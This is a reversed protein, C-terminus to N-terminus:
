ASIAPHLYVPELALGDEAGNKVFATYLHEANPTETQPVGKLKDTTVALSCKSLMTELEALPYVASPRTLVGNEYATFFFSNRRADTFVGLFSVEQLQLGLADSSRVPIVQAGAARALGQAIAIAVRIGSFSGPGVGVLITNLSALPIDSSKLSPILTQSIRKQKQPLSEGALKKGDSFYAWSAMHGSTELVLTTETPVPMMPCRHRIKLYPM